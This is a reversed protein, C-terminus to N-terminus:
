SISGQDRRSSFSRDLGLKGMIACLLVSFFAYINSYGFLECKELDIAQSNLRVLGDVTKVVSFESAKVKCNLAGEVWTKENSILSFVVDLINRTQKGPVLEHYTLGVADSLLGYTVPERSSEIGIISPIGLSSAELIATGSGVFLLAGRLVAEMESYEIPGLFKVASSVGITHAFTKLEEEHSGEGYIEYTIRPNLRLLDPMISIIHRNYTKFNYLNGISIIRNSSYSGYIGKDKDPLSIGIPLLSASSYDRKFFNSYSSRSAENFFVLSMPNLNAFIRKVVKAFYYNGGNFMFENQHYVGVSLKFPRVNNILMRVAFLLGFVGMAHVERGGEDLLKDLKLFKLPLFSGLQTRFFIKLFSQAFDELYVIKAWKELEHLLGIDIEDFVILVIPKEGRSSLERCTRILFTTGGNLPLANAIFIM